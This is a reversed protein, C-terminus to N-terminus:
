LNPEGTPPHELLQQAGAKLILKRNAPTLYPVIEHWTNTGKIALQVAMSPAYHRALKPYLNSEVMEDIINRLYARIEGPDNFYDRRHAETHTLDGMSVGTRAAYGTQHVDAAHTFEHALHSYLADTLRGRDAAYRLHDIPVRGNLNILIIPRQSQRLHGLGASVVHFPSDSYRANVRVLISRERGHIDTITFSTQPVVADQDGLPESVIALYDSIEQTLDQALSRIATLDLAIPRGRPTPRSM